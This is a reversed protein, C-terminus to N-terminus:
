FFLVNLGLDAQASSLYTFVAVGCWVPSGLSIYVNGELDQM